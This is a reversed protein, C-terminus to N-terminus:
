GAQRDQRSASGLHQFYWLCLVYVGGGLMPNDSLQPFISDALMANLTNIAILGAVTAMALVSRRLIMRPGIQGILWGL